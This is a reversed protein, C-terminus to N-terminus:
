GKDCVNELVHIRGQHSFIKVEFCDEAANLQPQISMVRGKVKQLAMETIRVNLLKSDEKSKEAVESSDEDNAFVLTSGTTSYIAGAVLISTLVTSFLHLGDSKKM